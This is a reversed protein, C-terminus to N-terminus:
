RTAESSEMFYTLVRGKVNVTRYEGCSETDDLSTETTDSDHPFLGHGLARRASYFRFYKNLKRCAKEALTNCDM